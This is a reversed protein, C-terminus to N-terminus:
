EAQKRQHDFRGDRLFALCQHIIRPSLVMMPHSIPLSLHDTARADRTANVSVLGDNPRPLVNAPVPYISRTGAIIGLDFDTEGYVGPVASSPRTLIQSGAPGFWRRYLWADALRDAVESGRNPPALMVVRGLNAPRHRAILARAVLGGMSHTIIHLPGELSNTFDAVAPAIHDAIDTLSKRRSPYSLNLVEYGELRLALEIMRMSTANRAIGHLLLVGSM